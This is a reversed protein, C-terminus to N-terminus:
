PSLLGRKVMLDGHQLLFHQVQEVKKLAVDEHHLSAGDTMKPFSGLPRDNDKNVKYYLKFLSKRDTKMCGALWLGSLSVPQASVYETSDEQPQRIGISTFPVLMNKMGPFQKEFKIAENASELARLKAAQEQKIQALEIASDLLKKEQKAKAIRQQLQHFEIQQRENLEGELKAKIDAFAKDQSQAAETQAQLITDDLTLLAPAVESTKVLLGDLRRNGLEIRQSLGSLQNSRLKSLTASRATLESVDEFAVEDLEIRMRNLKAAVLEIDLNSNRLAEDKAVLFMEVYQPDSAIRSGASNNGLSRLRQKFEALSSRVEVLRDDTLRLGEQFRAKRSIRIARDTAEHLEPTVNSLESTDTPTSTRPPSGALIQPAVMSSCWFLAFGVALAALLQPTKDRVQTRSRTANPDRESM